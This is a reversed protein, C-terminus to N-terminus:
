EIEDAIIVLPSGESMVVELIKVIDKMNTLKKDTVLIYPDNM